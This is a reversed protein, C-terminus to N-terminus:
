HLRELEYAFVAGSPRFITLSVTLSGDPRRKLPLEALRKGSTDVAHLRYVAGPPPTLTLEAEGRAALFPTTGWSDLREMAPSAFKAKTAQSDTLHLLLIRKSETLPLFDAAAAAFVARGTKNNVQMLPTAGKRGAPLILVECVPSVARFMERKRDIEIEGGSSRFIGAGPDYQRSTLLGAKLLKELVGHEQPGAKLVPVKGSFSPFATGTNFVARCDEPLRVPAPSVITGIRAILGLNALEPIYGTDFSLGNGNELLVAFSEKAPQIGGCSFLSVGIRHALSKVVDTSLDFHNNARDNRQYNELGHSYAFQFLADWGQLGAYAGILAPGEARFRNPKAYDFETITFPKGYLRSVTLSGPVPGTVIATRQQLISPLKWSNVPFRPHSSYGHNDVYDYMARMTSLKPTSGMNQDSLPCKVGLDRVFRKMQAYRKEYTETLFREFLANHEGPTNGASLAKAKRWEEFRTQYLARTFENKAWCSKINGENVLSISILM